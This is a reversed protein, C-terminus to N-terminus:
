INDLEPGIKVQGYQGDKGSNLDRKMQAEDADVERALMESIEREIEETCRMLYGTIGNGMGRSVKGGIMSGTTITKDGVKVEHTVFEYGDELFREVNEENVWCYHFGKETGKVTIKNRKGHIAGRTPRGARNAVTSPRDEVGIEVPAQVVGARGFGRPM